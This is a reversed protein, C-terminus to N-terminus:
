QVGGEEVEGAMVTEHELRMRGYVYALLLAQMQLYHERYISDAFGRLMWFGSLLMLAFAWRSQPYHSLSRWGSILFLGFLLLLLLAGGWGLALSTDIWGNHTHAFDFVPTAGCREAILKKYSQRSGDLGMPQELLMNLGVRMLVIRGGDANLGGIVQEGYAADAIGMRKLLQKGEEASLGHCLFGVPEKILFGARVKDVMTRWRADKHMTQFLIAGVLLGMIVALWAFRHNSGRAPAEHNDPDRLRVLYVVGAFVLLILSYLVAGRSGAILVSLLCACIAAVGAGFSAFHHARMAMFCAVSLLAITQSAAYGLNGHMPDFGRFGWPFGAWRWKESGVTVVTHYIARGMEAWSLTERPAAGFLGAWAMLTLVLHLAVLFGSACVLERLTPGRRRLMFVAGFGVTWALLSEGWQGRLNSWAADPQAAWLPFLLLFLGWGWLPLPVIRLDGRAGTTQWGGRISWVLLTLLLMFLLLNRLAITEAMPLIALYTLMGWKFAGQIKTKM